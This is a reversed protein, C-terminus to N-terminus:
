KEEPTMKDLMEQAAREKAEKGERRMLKQSALWAESRAANDSIGAQVQLFTPWVDCCIM